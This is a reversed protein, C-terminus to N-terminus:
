TTARTRASTRRSTVSTTTGCRRCAARAAAALRIVIAGDTGPPVDAGARTSSGCTTAPCRSREALRGQDADAGARAPEGVIPWGTETQWWHDVVPIGLSSAPGTRLTEPDLREGALFLTRSRAVPRLRALLEGDPDEKKIARFATPATFLAKVGTSRSSGSSRAPTPRASRSARTCCRRRASSCRRTSSTRTGSSGARRRVRGLVRRGARHRLDNAMSWRLAVAHGGNDRVIGKPRGTTGSTYLIYLPDTAAVPVCTWRRPAPALRRGLHRLRRGRGTGAAAAAGRVHDPQHSAEALAAELLPQYRVVRTPEVGCSTAVIVKPRADDIRAALERLRVRRLGGLARRRPPRLRADRDGDGAGDGHLHVVRDGKGVGLRRLAGAFM